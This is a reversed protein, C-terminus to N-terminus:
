RTVRWYVIIPVMWWPGDPDRGDRGIESRDLSVAQGESAIGLTGPAFHTKLSSALDLQDRMASEPEVPYFLNLVYTGTLERAQFRAAEGAVIFGERLWVADQPPDYTRRHWQVRDLMGAITPEAVLRGRLAALVKWESLATM